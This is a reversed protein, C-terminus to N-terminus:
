LPLCSTYVHTRTPATLADRVTLAASSAAPNGRRTGPGKWGAQFRTAGSNLLLQGFGKVGKLDCRPWDISRSNAAWLIDCGGM